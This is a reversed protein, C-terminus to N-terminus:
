YIRGQIGELTQDGKRRNKEMKTIMLTIKYARNMPALVKKTKKSGKQKASSSEWIGSTV